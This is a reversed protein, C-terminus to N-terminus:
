ANWEEYTKIEVEGYSGDTVNSIRTVTYQQYDPMVMVCCDDFVRTYFEANSLRQDSKMFPSYGLIGHSAIIAHAQQPTKFEIAYM